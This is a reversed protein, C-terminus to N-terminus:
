KVDSGGSGPLKPLTLQVVESVAQEPITVTVEKILRSPVVLLVSVVHVSQGSAFDEYYKEVAAEEDKGTAWNGDADYAIFIELELIKAM